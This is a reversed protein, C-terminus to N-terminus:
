NQLDSITSKAQESSPVTAGESFDYKKDPEYAFWHKDPLFNPDTSSALTITDPLIVGKREHM